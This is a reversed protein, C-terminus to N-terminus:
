CMFYDYRIFGFLLCLMFIFNNLRDSESRNLNINFLKNIIPRFFEPANEKIAPEQNWKDTRFYYELRTLICQGDIDNWNLFIIIILYIYYKLYKIPTIIYGILIYIVLIYHFYHITNAIFINM